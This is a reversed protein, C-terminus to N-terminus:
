IICLFIDIKGELWRPWSGKSRGDAGRGLAEEWTWYQSVQRLPHKRPRPGSVNINFSIVLSVTKDDDQFRETAKVQGQYWYTVLARCVGLLNPHGTLSSDEFPSTILNVQVKKYGWPIALRPAPPTMEHCWIARHHARENVFTILLVYVIYSAQIM